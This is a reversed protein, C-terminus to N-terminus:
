SSHHAEKYHQADIIRYYPAAAEAFSHCADKFAVATM